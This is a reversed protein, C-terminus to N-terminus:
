AKYQQFATKDLHGKEDCTPVAILYSAYETDFSITLVHQNAKLEIDTVIMQNSLSNMVTIIDKSRLHFKIPKSNQYLKPKPIKSESHNYNSRTGDYSIELTKSFSFMVQKNRDRNIQTGFERLWNDVFIAQLDQLWNATVTAGWVIEAAIEHNIDAQAKNKEMYSSQKYFYLNYIRGTVTNKTQLRHTAKLDTDTIVELKQTLTSFFCLDGKQLMNQEIYKLNPTRLIIDESIGSPYKFPKAITVVSCDTRFESYIIDKTKPRLRLRKGTRLKTKGDEIVIDTPDTLKSRHKEFELPLVQTKVTESLARLVPPIANDDRKYTEIITEQVLSDKNTVGLLDYTGNESRRVLAVAYGKRDVKIRKSKSVLNEIYPPNKSFYIEGLEIHKARVQKEALQETESKKKSASIKKNSTTEDDADPLATVGKGLAGIGGQFRIFQSIKLPADKVKYAQTNTEYEHHLARLARAWSQVKGSEYMDWGFQWILRILRTFNEENGRTALSHKAYLDDLFGDIKSADRWWLYTEGLTIYLKEQASKYLQSQQNADGILKDLAKELAARSSM